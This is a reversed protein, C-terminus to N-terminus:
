DRRSRILLYTPVAAPPEVVREIMFRSDILTNLITSLTRHTSGVSVRVSGPDEASPV